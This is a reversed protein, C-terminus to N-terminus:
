CSGQGDVGGYGTTKIKTENAIHYVRSTSSCSAIRWTRSSSTSTKLRGPNWRARFPTVNSAPVLSEIVLLSHFADVGFFYPKIPESIRQTPETALIDRFAPVAQAFSQVSALPLYLAIAQSLGASVHSKSVPYRRATWSESAISVALIHDVLAVVPDELHCFERLLMM